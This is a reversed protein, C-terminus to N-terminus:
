NDERQTRVEYFRLFYSQVTVQSTEKLYKSSLHDYDFVFNNKILQIYFKDKFFVSGVQESNMIICM